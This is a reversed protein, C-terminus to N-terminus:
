GACQRDEHVLDDIFAEREEESMADWDLGREACLRRLQAEAYDLRAERQARAEEALILLVTRKREPPLQKVLEIVQEDTLQIIPM